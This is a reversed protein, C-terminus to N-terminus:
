LLRDFLGFENRDWKKGDTLVEPESQLLCVITM